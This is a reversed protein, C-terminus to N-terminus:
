FVNLEDLLGKLMVLNYKLLNFTYEVSRYKYLFYFIKFPSILFSLIINRAPFLKYRISYIGTLYADRFPNPNPYHDVVPSVAKIWRYDNKEVWKRIYEDEYILLDEPIVINKVSDKKILTAITYGRPDVRAQNKTNTFDPFKPINEPYHHVFNSEIAGIEDGLIYNTIEKFWGHKLIVDSDIFAFWESDVNQISIERSKGLGAKTQIIKINFKDKYNDIIDLTKDISFGDLVILHCVPIEEFISNLCEALVSESNKTCIVVDIKM